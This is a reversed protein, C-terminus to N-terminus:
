GARPYLLGWGVLLHRKLPAHTAQWRPAMSYTGGIPGGVTTGTLFLGDVTRPIESVLPGPDDTPSQDLFLRDAM